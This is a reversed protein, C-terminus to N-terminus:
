LENNLKKAEDVTIKKGKQFAIITPNKVGEQKVQSQLTVAEQFTKLNGTTYVKLGKEDTYNEVKRLSSLKKIMANSSEPIKGKFSGIQIKYVIAPVSVTNTQKEQSTGISIFMSDIMIKSAKETEELLKNKSISDRFSNIKEQFKVIESAPCNKWYQDEIDRASLSLTSIEHNLAMSHEENKLILVATEDKKDVPSISYVKRLSDTQMSVKRLENEKLWAQYFMEKSENKVFHNFILYSIESNVQFHIMKRFLSDPITFEKKSNVTEITDILAKTSLIFGDPNNNGSNYFQHQLKKALYSKNAYINNGGAIFLLLLLSTKISTKFHILM